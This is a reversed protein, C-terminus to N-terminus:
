KRFISRIYVIRKKISYVFLHWNAKFSKWNAVVGVFAVAMGAGWSTWVRFDDTFHHAIISSIIFSGVSGIFSLLSIFPHPHHMSRDM